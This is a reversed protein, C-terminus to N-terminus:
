LNAPREWARGLVHHDLFALVTQYWVRSNGPKLIWHNEDPFYLFKAEQGVRHLDAWLRLAEGIPVRFDREGHIVLMPTRIRDVYTAPSNRHYIDADKIPDGFERDMWSGEDTTGTFQQLEWLGAHSVIARFRDTHGAVWNAMYGGFSGGLLATRNPDIDPRACVEDIVVELDAYTPTGWERWGRAVFDLGYGTSLAPDPLLVAYGASAFVPSNWRYTWSNWSSVPGGHVFVALPAPSTESAERPLVLWYHLRAGDPATTWGEAMSSRTSPQPYGPDLVDFAQKAARSDIRVVQPPTHITSRIAFARDMAPDVAFHSYHGEGTLRTMVGDKLDFRFAPHHGMCDATFHLASADASWTVDEPFLDGALELEREGGGDIDVLRLSVAGPATPTDRGYRVYAVTRSDPSVSPEQLDAYEDTLLTRSTGTRLDVVRLEARQSGWDTRMRWSHVLTMGDPSLDFSMENLALSDGSGPDVVHVQDLGADGVDAVVLRNYQPGLTHDWFRIPYDEVLVASIGADRRAKERADNRDDQAADTYALAMYAIRSGTRAARIESVIGTSLINAAASEGRLRRAEGAGAPLIWLSAPTEEPEEKSGAIPRSSVFVLSGDPLFSPHGEGEASYTLRRPVGQADMPLEWLAGVYKKGDESLRSISAVLRRGDQALALDGLRPLALLDDIGLAETETLTM